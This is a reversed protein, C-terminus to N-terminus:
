VEEDSNHNCISCVTNDYSYCPTCYCNCPAAARHNPQENGYLSLHAPIQAAAMVRAILNVLRLLHMTNVHEWGFWHCHISPTIACMKMAHTSCQTICNRANLSSCFIDTLSGCFYTRAQSLFSLVDTRPPVRQVERCHLLCCCSLLQCCQQWLM